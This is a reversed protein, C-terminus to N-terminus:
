ERVCERVGNESASEREKMDEHASTRVLAVVDEVGVVCEASPWLSVRRAPQVDAGSETRGGRQCNHRPLVLRLFKEEPSCVGVRQSLLEIM